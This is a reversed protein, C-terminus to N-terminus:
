ITMKFWPLSVRTAEHTMDNSAADAPTPCHSCHICHISTFSHRWTCKIRGLSSHKSRCCEAVAKSGSSSSTSSSALVVQSRRGDRETLRLSVDRHRDIQFRVALPKTQVPAQL